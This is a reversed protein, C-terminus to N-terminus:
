WHNTGAAGKIPGTIWSNVWGGYFGGPQPKAQEGDVFCADMAAVYLALHNAIPQFAPTPTPYAWACRAATKGGATLSFYRAQGKWECLSRGEAPQIVGDLFATSPIYYTPPHFTELVRWAENTKVIEVGGLVIRIQYTVSELRPPRPYDGVNEVPHNM